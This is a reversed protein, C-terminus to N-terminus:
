PATSTDSSIPPIFDKGVIVVIRGPAQGADEEVTGVALLTQVQLAEAGTDSSAIIRTAQVNPFGDANRVPLETYGLPKLLEVAKEAGGALGSGNQVELSVAPNSSKGGLLIKAMAVDPEFYAFDLGEVAKGPLAVQTWGSTSAAKLTARFAGGDGTVKMGQVAARGSDEGSKAALTMVAYAVESTVNGAPGLTQPRTGGAGLENLVRLLEAWEVIAAGSVKVGLMDSLSPAVNQAKGNSLLDALTKFGESTKVLTSGPMSMEVGGAALPHLLVVAQAKGAQEVALLTTGAPVSDGSTKSAAQTTGSTQSTGTTPITAASSSGNPDGVFVLLIGVVVAIIVLGSVLFIIRRRTQRRRAARRTTRRESRAQGGGTSTSRSRTTRRGPETQDGGSPGARRVTREGDLDTM